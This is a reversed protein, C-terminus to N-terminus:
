RLDEVGTQVMPIDKARGLWQVSKFPYRLWLLLPHSLVGNQALSRTIEKNITLKASLDATSLGGERFVALTERLARTNINEHFYLKVIQDFDGSIRFTPDFGGVKNLASRRTYFAPHPPMHGFRLMWRRFRTSSYVRRVRTLDHQDVVVTQGMVCDIGEAFGSAVIRLADTRALLDDANLFGVVDGTALALGKNMADYAGRDPESLWRM